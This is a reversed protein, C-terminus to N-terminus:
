YEASSFFSDFVLFSFRLVLFASGTRQHREFLSDTKLIRSRRGRHASSRLQPDNNGRLLPRLMPYLPAVVTLAAQVWATKSRVDGVPQIYGPRFMYAAAFPLGVPDVASAIYFISLLVLMFGGFRPWLLPVAPELSLLRLVLDPHSMAVLGLAINTIIGLWALRSFWILARAASSTPADGFASAMVIMFSEKLVDASLCSPRGEPRALPRHWLSPRWQRQRAAAHRLLLGKGAGAEPRVAAIRLRGGHPMAQCANLALNLFAQQLLGADGSVPPLTASVEVRVDVGSKSAEAAVIPMMEEIIPLVAVPRLQLDEPRTFKLFGQVVEDLRRVQAAIISVHELAEPADALQLSPAYSGRVSSTPPM